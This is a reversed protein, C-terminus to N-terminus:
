MPWSNGLPVFPPVFTVYVEFAAWPACSQITSSSVSQFSTCGAIALAAATAGIKAPWCSAAAGGTGEVAEATVGVKVPPATERVRGNTTEVPEATVGVSVAPATLAEGGGTEEVPDAVSGDSVAPATFRVTVGISTVADTGVEVNLGPGSLM